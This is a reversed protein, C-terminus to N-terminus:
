FLGTFWDYADSAYDGIGGLIDGGVDYIGEGVDSVADLFSGGSGLSLLGGGGTIPAAVSKAADDGSFLGSLWSRGDEGFLYKGGEVALSPLVVAAGKEFASPPKEAFEDKLRKEVEANYRAQAEPDAYYKDTTPNYVYGAWEQEGWKAYNPGTKGYKEPTKKGPKAAM